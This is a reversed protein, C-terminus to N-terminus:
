SHNKPLHPSLPLRTQVMEIKLGTLRETRSIWGVVGDDHIWEANTKRQLGSRTQATALLDLGEARTGAM